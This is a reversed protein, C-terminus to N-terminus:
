GQLSRLEGEIERKQELLRQKEDTMPELEAELSEIKAELQNKKISNMQAWQREKAPLFQFWQAESKGAQVAGKRGQQFLLEIRLRIRDYEEKTRALEEEKDRIEALRDDVRQLEQRLREAKAQDEPSPGAPAPAKMGGEPEEPLAAEGPPAMESEAPAKPLGGYEEVKLVEGEPIAAIGGAYSFRMEGGARVYADVGSIISGNKLYIRYAAAAPYAAALLLFVSLIVPVTKKM